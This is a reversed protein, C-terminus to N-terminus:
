TPNSGYYWGLTPGSNSFDEYDNSLNVIDLVSRFDNFSLPKQSLLLKGFIRSLNKNYPIPKRVNGVVDGSHSLHSLIKHSKEHLKDAGHQRLDVDGAGGFKGLHRFSEWQDLSIPDNEENEEASFLVSPLRMRRQQSLPVIFILVFGFVFCLNLFHM